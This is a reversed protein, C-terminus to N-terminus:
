RFWVILEVARIFIPGRSRPPLRLSLIRQIIFMENQLTVPWYAINKTKRTWQGIYANSSPSFMIRWIGIDYPIRLVNDGPLRNFSKLIRTKSLANPLIYPRVKHSIASPHIDINRLWCLNLIHSPARLWWAMIQAMTSGSLDRWLADIPWLSNIQKTHNYWWNKPKM